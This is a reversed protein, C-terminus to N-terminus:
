VSEHTSVSTQRLVMLTGAVLFIAAAILQYFSVHPIATIMIRDGRVFDILFRELSMGIIYLLALMGSGISQTRRAYARLLFFLCFFLASSYLQSPHLAIHLPALVQPNTYTIGFLSQTPAGYCCGVLFCGIRAIGHILPAYLAAIDVIALYPIDARWLRWLSFGLVGFFAGLISLGGDWIRLMSYLTPYQSISSIIHLIRGGIIGALASEICLNFFASSSMLKKRAPHRNALYMFLAIGVMIATNYSNLELPGYLTLLKPYM